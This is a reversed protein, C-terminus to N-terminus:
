DGILTLGLPWQIYKSGDSSTRNKNWDEESESKRSTEEM